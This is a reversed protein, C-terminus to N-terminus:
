KVIAQLIFSGISTTGPAPKIDHETVWTGSFDHPVAEDTSALLLNGTPTINARGLLPSAASLLAIGTGKGDTLTLWHLNRKASIFSLDGASVTGSPAGIHGAPYDTFYSDRYWSLKNFAAPVPFKYGEEWLSTAAASWNLGWVVAIQGNPAISYVTTLTGLAAKTGGDVLKGAVTVDIPGTPDPAAYTVVVGTLM